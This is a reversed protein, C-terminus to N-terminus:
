WVSNANEQSQLTLFTLYHEYSSNTESRDSFIDIDNIIKMNKSGRSEWAKKWPVLDHTADILSKNSKYNKSFRNLLDDFVEIEFDSFYDLNYKKSEIVIKSKNSSLLDTEDFETKLEFFSKGFNEDEDISVLVEDPVPGREMAKFTLEFPPEGVQELVKYYFLALFKFLATKYLKKGSLEKHKFAFYSIANILREQSYPIMEVGM